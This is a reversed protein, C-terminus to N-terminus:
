SALLPVRVSPVIRGHRDKAVRLVVADRETRSLEIRAATPLPMSRRAGLDTLLLVSCSTGEVALALRRVVTGLRDLQTLRGADVVVVAFARSEAVRVAARSLLSVDPAVFFFRALDVGRARVGPGYLSRTPDIWACLAVNGFREAERQAAVCAGIAISTARARGAPSAIEVVSGRLLGGTLAEDIAPGLVPGIALREEPRQTASRLRALVLSLPADSRATVSM